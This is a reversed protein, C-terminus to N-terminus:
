GVGLSADYQPLRYSTAAIRLRRRWPMERRRRRQHPATTRTKHIAFATM